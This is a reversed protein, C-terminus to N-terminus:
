ASVAPRRHTWPHAAELQAALRFLTAEDGSRGIFQVGVPLGEPSWHLPVSMAPNGAINAMPCYPTFAAARFLPQLPEDAPAEFSGLLPAPETVTPLLWADVEDFRHAFARSFRQLEAGAQLYAALGQSLGYRYLAWTFPEVDSPEVARGQRRAMADLGYVVGAAWTTMFHQGLEEEGPVQLTAEIVSHGLGELRRAAAVVAALCEPHVPAGVANRLSLGIRLRGPPAGVEMLFPRNRPPALSPAGLDPGETADLLAASDRVTRTVAHEAMMWHYADGLDPGTPNRGRTPKLGFLGCNSAPIRISGGGDSAHAFPVMGSAVAAAAGGSSGGASRAVDWPNRCPGFLAGETTPLLGLEPTNTKGLVVLGARLHRKVLESDHDPVFDKMFRSGGTLPQGRQAAILDKLLFPVGTFPGEPLPGRARERATDFQTQVVANLKPNCREIRAIAADVLELPTVERRRVLEAQATADLSVFPDM